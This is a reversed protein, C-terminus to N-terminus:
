DHLRLQPQSLHHTIFSGLNAQAGEDQWGVWWFEVGVDHRGPGSDCWKVAGLAIVPAPVGPLGMRLAVMAGVQPPSDTSFCLGGGSINQLYGPSQALPHPVRAAAADDIVRWSLDCAAHLRPFERYEKM